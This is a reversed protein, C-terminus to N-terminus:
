FSSLFDYVKRCSWEITKNAEKFDTSQGVAGPEMEFSVRGFPPADSVELSGSFLVVHSRSNSPKLLTCVRIHKKEGKERAKCFYATEKQESSQFCQILVSM